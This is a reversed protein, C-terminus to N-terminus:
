CPLVVEVGVRNPRIETVHFLRYPRESEFKSLSLDRMRM